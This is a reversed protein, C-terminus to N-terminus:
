ERLKMRGLDLLMKSSVKESNMEVDAMIYPKNGEITIPFATFKRQRKKFLKESKYVTIKKNIYNIEIQHDKFFNYGMIGNVPIGVHSSFNISEDLIIFITHTLDTYEKGIRVINNEARLGEIKTTGGLGSFKMKEVDNFNIEKNELSFLITENVGSDLLFTLDIGNINVPIFILNNILQFPIVTKKPNTVEFGTQGFSFSFLFLFIIEERFNVPINQAKSLEKGRAYVQAKYERGKEEDQKDLM